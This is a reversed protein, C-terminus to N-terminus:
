LGVDRRVKSWPRRPEGKLRRLHEAVFKEPPLSDMLENLVDDHSTDGIKYARLRKVTELKVSITTYPRVKAM